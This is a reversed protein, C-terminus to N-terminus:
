IDFLGDNYNEQKRSIKLKKYKRMRKIFYNVILFAIIMIIAGCAIGYGIKDIIRHLKFAFENQSVLILIIISSVVAYGWVLKKCKFEKAICCIIERITKRNYIESMPIYTGIWISIAISILTVYELSKDEYNLIICSIIVALLSCFNCVNKDEKTLIKKEKNKVEGAMSEYLKEVLFWCFVLFGSCIVVNIMINKTLLAVISYILVSMYSFVTFVFVCAVMEMKKLVNEFKIFLRNAFKMLLFLCGIILYVSAFGIFFMKDM